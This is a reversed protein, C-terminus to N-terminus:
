CAYCPTSHVLMRRFYLDISVLFVTVSVSVCLAALHMNRARGNPLIAQARRSRGWPRPLFAKKTESRSTQGAALLCPVAQARGYWVARMLPTNGDHDIANVFAKADIVAPM